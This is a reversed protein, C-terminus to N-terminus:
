SIQWHLILLNQIEINRRHQSTGFDSALHTGAGGELPLDVCYTNGREGAKWWVKFFLPSSQVGLLGLEAEITKTKHPCM